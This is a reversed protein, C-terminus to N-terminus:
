ATQATPAKTLMWTAPYRNPSWTGHHPAPSMPAIMPETQFQPMEEIM